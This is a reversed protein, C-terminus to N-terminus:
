QLIEWFAYLTVILIAAVALLLEGSWPNNKLLTYTAWTNFTLLFTSLFIKTQRDGM